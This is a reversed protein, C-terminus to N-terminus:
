KMHAQFNKELAEAMIEDFTKEEEKHAQTFTQRPKKKTLNEQQTLMKSSRKHRSSKIKKGFYQFQELVDSCFQCVDRPVICVGHSYLMHHRFQYRRTYCSYCHMFYCQYSQDNKSGGDEEDLVDHNLVDDAKGNKLNITTKMLHLKRNILLNDREIFKSDDNLSRSCHECCYVPAVSINHELMHKYFGLSTPFVNNCRNVFCKQVSVNM